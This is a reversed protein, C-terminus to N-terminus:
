QYIVLRNGKKYRRGKGFAKELFDKDVYTLRRFDAPTANEAKGVDAVTVDLCSKFVVPEENRQSRSLETHASIDKLNEQRSASTGDEETVALYM